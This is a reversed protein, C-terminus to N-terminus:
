KRRRPSEIPVGFFRADLVRWAWRYGLEDLAATFEGFDRGGHVDLFGPIPVNELVLWTPRVAAVLAVFTRLLGSRDDELGARKGAVSFGQCPSGATWLDAEPVDDPKVAEIDTPFFDPAGFHRAYVERCYPDIECAGVITHGLRTLALDFGGIGSFWSIARM